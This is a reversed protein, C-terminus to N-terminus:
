PPGPRTSGQQESRSRTSGFRGTKAHASSDAISARFSPSKAARMGDSKVPTSPLNGVGEVLDRKQALAAGSLGGADAVGDAFLPLEFLAHGHRRAHPPQASSIAAILV